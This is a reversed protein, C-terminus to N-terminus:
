PVKRCVRVFSLVEATAKIPLFPKVCGKLTFWVVLHRLNVLPFVTLTLPSSNSGAGLVAVVAIVVVAVVGLSEDEFLSM